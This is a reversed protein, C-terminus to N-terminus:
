LLGAPPRDEETSPQTLMDMVKSYIESGHATFNNRITEATLKDPMALQLRFVDSGMDGIACWVVYEGDEEEIRARNMAAKHKWSQIQMVARIASERVTRPLDFALTDAVTSGKDTISYREDEDLSVLQQREVDALADAFEFYNVLQEQLLAGQLTDRTLPGATKVLYCLLIRIQTNDTLGGPKVGATFAEAM